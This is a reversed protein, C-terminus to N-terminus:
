SKVSPSFNDPFIYLHVKISVIEQSTWLDCHELPSNHPKLLPALHIPQFHCRHQPFDSGITLWADETKLIRVVKIRFSM